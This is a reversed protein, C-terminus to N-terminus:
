SEFVNNSVNIYHKFYAEPVIKFARYLSVGKIRM